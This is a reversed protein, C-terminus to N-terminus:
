GMSWLKGVRARPYIRLPPTVTGLAVRDEHPLTLNNEVIFKIQKINVRIWMKWYGASVRLIILKPICIYTLHHM